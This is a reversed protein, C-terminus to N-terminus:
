LKRSDLDRRALIAEYMPDDQYVIIGKRANKNKEEQAKKIAESLMTGICEGCLDSLECGCNKCKM